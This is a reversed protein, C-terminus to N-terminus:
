FDEEQKTLTKTNSLPHSSSLVKVVAIVIATFYVSCVMKIASIKGYAM